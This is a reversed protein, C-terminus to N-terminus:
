LVVRHLCLSDALYSQGSQEQAHHKPNKSCAGCGSVKVPLNVLIKFRFHGQHLHIQIGSHWEGLDDRMELGLEVAVQIVRGMQKQVRRFEEFLWSVVDGGDSSVYLMHRQPVCKQQYRFKIGSFDLVVSNVAGDEESLIGGPSGM